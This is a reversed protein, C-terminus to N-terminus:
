EQDNSILPPLHKKIMLEKVRHTTLGEHTDLGVLDLGKEMWAFKILKMVIAGFVLARKKMVVAYMEHCLIDMVDLKKGEGVMHYSKNMINILMGHIKDFNGLRPAVTNRFIRHMIDWERVLNKQEGVM